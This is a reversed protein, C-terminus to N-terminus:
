KFDVSGGVGVRAIVCVFDVVYASQYIRGSFLMTKSMFCSPVSM